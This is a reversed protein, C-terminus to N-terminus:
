TDRLRDIEYCLSRLEHTVAFPLNVAAIRTSIESFRFHASLVLEIRIFAFLQSVVVRKYFYLVTLYLVLSFKTLHCLNVNATQRLRPELREM